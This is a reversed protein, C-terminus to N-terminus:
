KFFHALDSAHRKRRLRLEAHGSRRLRNDLAYLDPNKEALHKASEYIRQETREVQMGGPEDYYRSKVTIDDLRCVAGDALYYLLSREVDEKDDLTVRYEPAQRNICGYLSGIIYYLGVSVRHKMFHPNAAAYIGWLRANYSQCARFGPEIVERELSRVKCCMKADVRRLIEQLDDDLSVPRTGEPYYGTIFDRIAGMGVEGVVLNTYPTNALATKYRLYESGDAVFITVIKPDIKYRQLLPLTEQTITNDRRYSPIAIAYNM